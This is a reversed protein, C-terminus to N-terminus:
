RVAAGEQRKGANKAGKSSYDKMGEIAGGAIAWLYLSAVSGYHSYRRRYKEFLPRPIERHRYLMRMGRLIALDGFSLIDPRGLSFLMLMEATWVGIGDLRILEGRVEEDSKEPLSAIDFSGDSVKEALGRIYGAKKFTIGFAQLEDLACGLVSDPTIEGLRSIMRNLVTEGAKSSIRQCVISNVLAEFLDTTIESRIPGISDIAEGLRKDKRKLYVTEREGYVFIAM